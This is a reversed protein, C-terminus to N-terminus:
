KKEVKSKTCYFDYLQFVDDVLCKPNVKDVEFIFDKYHFKSGLLDKHLAEDSVDIGNDLLEKTPITIISKTRLTEDYSNNNSIDINVKGSITIPPKYVRDVSEKYVNIKTNDMDLQYFDIETTLLIDFVEKIGVLFEEAISSM